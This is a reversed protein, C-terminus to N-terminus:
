TNETEDGRRKVTVRLIEEVYFLRHSNIMNFQGCIDYM